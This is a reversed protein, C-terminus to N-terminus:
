RILVKAYYLPLAFIFFSTLSKARASQAIMTKEISAAHPECDTLRLVALSDNADLAALRFKKEKSNLAGPIHRFIARVKPAYGKAYEVLETPTRKLQAQIADLRKIVAATGKM